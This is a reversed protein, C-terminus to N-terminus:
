RVVLVSGRAHQVLRRSVSGLLWGRVAGLGRAGVITLDIKQTRSYRLIVEAADGYAIRRRARVGASMLAQLSETVISQAQQAQEAKHRRDWKAIGALSPGPPILRAGTPWGPVTLAAMPEHAAVHLVRVEAEPPLAFGALFEVAAQSTASGDVALLVRSLGRFPARAILTPWRSQEIVQHAIGRWPGGAKPRLDNAGTVVLDPKLEEAVSRWRRAAEVPLAQCTVRLGRQKLAPRAQDQAALALPHGPQPAQSGAALLMVESGASLPLAAILEVAAASHVSSDLFQLITHPVVIM